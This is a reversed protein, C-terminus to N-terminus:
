QLAMAEGYEYPEMGRLSPWLLLLTDLTLASGAAKLGGAWEGSRWDEEM